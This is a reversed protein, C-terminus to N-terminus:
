GARVLARIRRVMPHDPDAVNAIHRQAGRLDDKEALLLGYCLRVRWDTPRKTLEADIRRELTRTDNARQDAPSRLYDIMAFLISVDTRSSDQKEAWSLLFTAEGTRGEAMARFAREVKPEAEFAQRERESVSNNEALEVMAAYGKAREPDRLVAAADEILARHARTAIDDGDDEI